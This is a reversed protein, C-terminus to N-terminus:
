CSSTATVTSKKTRVGPTWDLVPDGRQGDRTRLEASLRVEQHSRVLMTVVAVQRGNHETTELRVPRGNATLQTIKGGTPAYLRLNLRMFCWPAYEGTGRIFRSLQYGRRPVSSDLVMGVQLTQAGKATCRASRVSAVYDLYYEIKAATGDNLYLGVHPEDGTDRPLEGSAMTGALQRQEEPHASWVLFRRQGASRGLQRLVKVPEVDRTVLSDFVGRAARDFYADQEDRTEFRQYVENVLKRVVNGATFREDGIEVPGTARLVAALAVPDVSVIGDIDTGFSRKQLASILSAARPFDPTLNMDRINEGLNDGYLAREESTLPLVPDTLVAFDDVARQTGLSLKGDVADLVVLSGPLGGTSRIEANNQVVMLYRRPEDGGLMPPVLRAVTVGGEAAALSSDLQDQVAHTVDRLPGLLHDPDLQDVDDAAVGLASALRRLPDELDAVAAIDVRGDADRLMTGRTQDLLTVVPEYSKSSAENLARAMVQVAEVDDGLLPFRGLGDWLPNDSHRRATASASEITRLTHKVAAVDHRRVEGKLQIAENKAERLAFVTRVAQYTFVVAVVLLLAAGLRLLLRRWSTVRPM